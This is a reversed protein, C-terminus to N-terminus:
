KGRRDVLQQWSVNPGNKSKKKDLWRVGEKSIELRGFKSGNKHVGWGEPQGIPVHRKDNWLSRTEDAPPGM